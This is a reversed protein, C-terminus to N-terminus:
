YRSDKGSLGNGTSPGKKGTGSKVAVLSLAKATHPHLRVKGPISGKGMSKQGRVTRKVDKM